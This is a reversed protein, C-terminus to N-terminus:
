LVRGGELVVVQDAHRLAMPRHSVALITQEDETALLREWLLSETEVDLASSLDDFILLEPRRVLMRAAAVRQQQGGSLKVGRPGIRTALGEELQELDPELVTTHIAQTLTTDSYPLGLLVNDLVSDSFLRPTQALYASRPPVFFSAPDAVPLGNWRIEGTDKPLLGLLVKLLTTKGAGVEGAIITVKGRILELSVDCIGRDSTPYRYTLNEIILTELADVNSKETHSLAPEAHHRDALSQYIPGHEVLTAASLEPNVTETLRDFAVVAQQYQTITQGINIITDNLSGLYYVFLVFSGVTFSGEAMAAASVLMIAGIGLNPINRYLADLLSHLLSHRLMARRRDNNLHQFRNVIHPESTTVQITEIVGFSEGIFETIRDTGERSSRTLQEMRNQLRNAILIVLVLPGFVLVAIWANISTMVFLATLAFLLNGVLFTTLYLFNAITNPDDRLHSIAEGPSTALAQAAPQQLMHDLVNKRLLVGIPHRAFRNGVIDIMVTVARALGLGFLLWLLTQVNWGVTAQSTTGQTALQEFFQGILLGRAQPLLALFILKTGLMLLYTWTQYRLLQWFCLITRKM